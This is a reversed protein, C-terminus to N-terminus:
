LEDLMKALEEPTKSKLSEDQKDAMISLIKQKKDKRAAELERAAIEALRVEVIHRIITVALELDTDAQTKPGLLSEEKSANLKANLGKFIKDLEQVTLDWLDEVSLLGKYTFRIKSRSAQEFIDSM